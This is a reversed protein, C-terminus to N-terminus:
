ETARTYDFDRTDDLRWKHPADHWSKKTGTLHGESFTLQLHTHEGGEWDTYGTLSLQDGEVYGILSTSGGDMVRFSNNSMDGTLKNGNQRITLTFLETRKNGSRDTSELHMVWKGSFDRAPAPPPPAPGRQAHTVGAALAAILCLTLILKL